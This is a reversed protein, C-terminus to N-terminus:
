DAIRFIAANIPKKQEHNIFSYNHRVRELVKNRNSIYPFVPGANITM